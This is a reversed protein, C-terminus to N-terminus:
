GILVQYISHLVFWLDLSLVIVGYFFKEFMPLDKMFCTSAHQLMFRIWSRPCLGVLHWADCLKWVPGSWTCEIQMWSMKPSHTLVHHTAWFVLIASLPRRTHKNMLSTAAKMWINVYQAWHCEGRFAELDELPTEGENSEWAASVSTIAPQRDAISGAM